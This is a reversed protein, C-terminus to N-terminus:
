VLLLSEQFLYDTAWIRTVLVVPTKNVCTVLLSSLLAVPGPLGFSRQMQM